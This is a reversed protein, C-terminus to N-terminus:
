KKKLYKKLYNDYYGGGYGLRHKNKNFALLPVLMINPVIYNKDKKPELMGFTNVNLPERYQWKYFKMNKKSVVPLLIQIKKLSLHKYINLTNLEFNSPYYISLYVLEKKYKKKIISFIPNFFNTKVEFYNKKRLKFFKKRLQVKTIM